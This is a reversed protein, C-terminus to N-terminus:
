SVGTENDNDKGCLRRSLWPWHDALDLIVRLSTLWNLVATM